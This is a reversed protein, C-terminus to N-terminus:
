LWCPLEYYTYILTHMGRIKLMNFITRNQISGSLYRTFTQQGRCTLLMLQMQNHYDVQASSVLKALPVSTHKTHSYIPPFGWISLPPVGSASLFCGLHQSFSGWISLHPVGSASILCSMGSHHKHILSSRFTPCVHCLTSLPSM